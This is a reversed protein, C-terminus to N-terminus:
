QFSDMRMYCTLSFSINMNPSFLSNLFHENSRILLHLHQYNAFPGQLRQKKKEKKQKKKHKNIQKKGQQKKSTSEAGNGRKSHQGSREAGGSGRHVCGWGKMLVSGQDGHRQDLREGAASLGPEPERAKRRGSCREMWGEREFAWLSLGVEQQVQARPTYSVYEMHGSVEAPKYLKM